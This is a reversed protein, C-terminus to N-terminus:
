KKASVNVSKVACDHKMCRLCTRNIVCEDDSIRLSPTTITVENETCNPTRTCMGQVGQTSMENEPYEELTSGVNRISGMTTCPSEYHNVLLKLEISPSCYLNHAELPKNKRIIDPCKSIIDGFIDLLKKYKEFKLPVKTSFIQFYPFYM